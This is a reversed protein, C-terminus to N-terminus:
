LYPINLFTRNKDLNSCQYECCKLHKTGTRKLPTDIKKLIDRLEWKNVLYCHDLNRHKRKCKGPSNNSNQWLYLLQM